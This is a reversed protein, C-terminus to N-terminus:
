FSIGLVFGYRNDIGFAGFGVPGIFKKQALLGLKVKQGTIPDIDESSTALLAVNYLDTQNTTKTESKKSTEKFSESSGEKANETLVTGRDVIRTEKKITGDPLKYEIVTVEKNKNENKRSSEKYKIVEKEVIKEEIKTVTKTPVTTRGFAFAVILAIGALLYKMKNNM